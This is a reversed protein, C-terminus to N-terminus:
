SLAASDPMVTGSLLNFLTSKGAGNSGIITIFEGKEVKLNFNEFVRNENPTGANFTLTANDITIM